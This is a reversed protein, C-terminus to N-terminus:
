NKVIGGHVNETGDLKSSRNDKDGQRKNTNQRRKEQDM